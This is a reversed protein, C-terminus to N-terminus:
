LTDSAEKMRWILNPLTYVICIYRCEASFSVNRPLLEGLSKRVPRAMVYEMEETELRRGKGGYIGGFSRLDM